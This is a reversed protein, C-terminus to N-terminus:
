HIYVSVILTYMYTILTNIPVVFFVSLVFLVGNELLQFSELKCFVVKYLM